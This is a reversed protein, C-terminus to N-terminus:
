GAQDLDFLTDGIQLRRGAVTIPAIAGEGLSFVWWIPSKALTTAAKLTLQGRSGPLRDLQSELLDNSPSALRLQIGPLHILAQGGEIWWAAERDGHWHYNLTLDPNGEIEDAVVVRHNGELWLTRTVQKLQLTAPYCGTVDLKAMWRTPGQSGLALRRGAKSTPALGNIMPLNHAAPGITFEREKKKMYQQYGPDTIVWHEQTGILLSGYDFHIHGMSSNSAGVVVALDEPAWGSRLVISQHAELAGAVPQFAADPEPVERLAALADAPLRDLACGGLYWARAADPRFRQLKAQAAAHFPMEVPEIDGLEAVNMLNGPASMRYSQELYDGLRPHDLIEKQQDPALTELWLMIFDLLYGDYAVGETHGTFRRDLLAPILARLLAQVQEVEAVGGAVGAAAAGIAGILRINHLLIHANGSALVDSKTTISANAKVLGPLADAFLRRCALRLGTQVSEDLWTWHKLAVWLIRAAHGMALDPLDLQRFSPWDALASLDRVVARKAEQTGLWQATWGLAGIREELSWLLWISWPYNNITPAPVQPIRLGQIPLPYALRRRIRYYDVILHSASWCRAARRLLESEIATSKM